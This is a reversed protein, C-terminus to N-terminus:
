KQLRKDIEDYLASLLKEIEKIEKDCDSPKQAYSSSIRM